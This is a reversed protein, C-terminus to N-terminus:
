PKLTDELNKFSLTGKKDETVELKLGVTKIMDFFEPTYRIGNIVLHIGDFGFTIFKGKIYEIKKM